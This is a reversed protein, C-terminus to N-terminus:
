HPKLVSSQVALDEARDWKCSKCEEVRDRGGRCGAKGMRGKRGMVVLKPSILSTSM